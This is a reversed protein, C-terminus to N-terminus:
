QREFWEALRSANMSEAPRDARACAAALRRWLYAATPRVKIAAELAPVAEEYRGADCLALGLRIWAAKHRPDLEAARRFLAAATAHDGAEAFGVGLEFTREAANDPDLRVAEDLHPIAEKAQRAELLAIGLSGRVEPDRPALRVAHRLIEAGLEPMEAARYGDALRLWAQPDGPNVHVAAELEAFPPPDPDDTTMVRTTDAFREVSTM